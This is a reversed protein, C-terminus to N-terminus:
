HRYRMLLYNEISARTAATIMRDYVAIFAIGGTYYRGPVNTQGGIWYALNAFGSTRSFQSAIIFIGNVYLSAFGNRIDVNIVNFSDGSFDGILHEEETGNGLSINVGCGTLYGIGYGNGADRYPDNEVAFIPKHVSGIPNQPVNEVVFFFSANDELCLSGDTVLYDDIGDFYVAHNNGVANEVMTPRRSSTAQSATLSKETIGWSAVAGSNQIDNADLCLVRNELPLYNCADGTRVTFSADVLRFHKWSVEEISASSIESADVPNDVQICQDQNFQSVMFYWGSTSLELKWRHCPSSNGDYYAVIDDTTSVDHLYKGSKLNRLKFYTGDVPEKIWVQNDTDTAECVSVHGNLETLYGFSRRSQIKVLELSAHNKFCVADARICKGAGGDATLTISTETAPTCYYTGVYIWMNAPTQQNLFVTEQIGNGSVTYKVLTSSPIDYPVKHIFIDYYGATGIEVTWKAWQNVDNSYNYRSGGNYGIASDGWNAGSESYGNDTNDIIISAPLACEENYLCNVQHDNLAYNYIRLEDIGGKFRRSALDLAGGITIKGAGSPGTHTWEDLKGGDSYATYTAGSRTLAIQHWQGDSFGINYSKTVNGTFFVLNDQIDRSASIIVGSYGCDTGSYIIPRWVSGGPVQGDNRAWCLITFDDQENLTLATEVYDDVGDFKLANRCKGEVWCSSTDFEHLVATSDCGQSQGSGACSSAINGKYEDFSWKATMGFLKYEDPFDSNVGIGGYVMDERCFGPLWSCNTFVHTTQNVSGNGRMPIGESDTIEINTLIQNQVTDPWDFFIGNPKRDEMTPSATSNHITINQFTNVYGMDANILAAHLAGGDGSDQMCDYIKLFQFVNGASPSFQPYEEPPSQYKLNGRMTIAYRGSNFLECYEIINNSSNFLGICAAYLLRQGIDHIKNNFILSYNTNKLLLGNIDMNKIVSNQITFSESDYVSIGNFGNNIKCNEFVIDESDEILIMARSDDWPARTPYVAGAMEFALGDFRINQVPLEVSGAVHMLSTVTPMIIGSTYVTGSGNYPKYYLVGTAANHYFEGPEDLFALNDLYFFQMESEMIYPVNIYNFQSNLNIKKNISDISSISTIYRSWSRDGYEVIHLLLDEGALPAPNFDNEDYGIWAGTTEEGDELTEDRDWDTTHFYAAQSLPFDPDSVYDPERALICKKGNEFLSYIKDNGINTSYIGSSYYSWSTPNILQGGVLKAKGTGDYSKYIVSYGNFGSDARTLELTDSLYYVRKRLNITIDSSMGANVTRVTDRAKELTKFPQNLSGDNTTDNGDPSVFYEISFVNICVIFFFFLAVVTHFKQTRKM